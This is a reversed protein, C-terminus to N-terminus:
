KKTRLVINTFYAWPKTTSGPPKPVRSSSKSASVRTCVRLTVLNGTTSKPLSYQPPSTSQSRPATTAWPLAEGASRSSKWTM